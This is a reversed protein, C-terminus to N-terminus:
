KLDDLKVEQKIQPKGTEDRVELTIKPNKKSWDICILGFNAGRFSEGVRHKNPDIRLFKLPQNLSSSTLDYLPYPLGTDKPALKSLEASHRDGSIVLVGAAKTDKLLKLLRARELPLNAWKEWGQDEIAFQISSALIRVRAPVKLQQELWAWQAEGLMSAGPDDNPVYPGDFKVPTPSKKLGGRFYRTDLMLVQVERGKPGYVHADYVGERKRRPSAQPEHFFDLFVQQAEKKKPFEAGADNRGYDHDDWTAFVPCTQVLKRYGPTAALQDYKAKMVAMDETDAYVTDGIFLFLEPRAAAVADWVPAPMDQRCCSGFAIRALPAEEAPTPAPVDEARLSSLLLGAAALLFLIRM